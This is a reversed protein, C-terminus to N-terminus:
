YQCVCFRGGNSFTANCNQNKDSRRKVCEADYINYAPPWSESGQTQAYGHGSGWFHECVSFDSDNWNAAVCGGYYDSCFETCSEPFAFSARWCAKGGQGACGDCGDDYLYGGCTVCSGNYCRKDDGQCGFLGSGWYTTVAECSEGDGLCQHCVPCSYTGCSNGDGSCYGTYCECVEYPGTYCGSIDCVDWLDEDSDQYDCAGKGDCYGTYCGDKPCESVLDEDSEQPVCNGGFDCKMCSGCNHQGNTYYGCFNGIGSCNGTLCGSDGDCQDSIDVGLTQNWFSTQFGCYGNANCAYCEGNGFNEDCKNPGITDYTNIPYYVPDLSEGNCKQCAPLDYEGSSTATCIGKEDDYVACKHFIECSYRDIFIGCKFTGDENIGVAYQNEPCVSSPFDTLRTWPVYGETLMGTSDIRWKPGEKYAYFNLESGAIYIPENGDPNSRLALGDYGVVKDVKEINGETSDDLYLVGGSVTLTKVTLGGSKTQDAPGVNLPADCGPYGAPCEAPSGPANTFALICYATLLSLISVSLILSLFQQKTKNM